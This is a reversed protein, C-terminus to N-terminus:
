MSFQLYFFLFLKRSKLTCTSCDATALLEILVQLTRNPTLPFDENLCNYTCQVYAGESTDEHDVAPANETFLLAQVRQWNEIRGHLELQGSSMRVGM